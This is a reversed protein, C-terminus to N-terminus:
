RKKKQGSSSAQGRKKPTDHTNRQQLARGLKGLELTGEMSFAELLTLLDNPETKGKRLQDKLVATAEDVIKQHTQVQSRLRENESRLAGLEPDESRDQEAHQVEALAKKLEQIEQNKETVQGELSRILAANEKEKVEATALQDQLSRVEGQLNHIQDDVHRAFETMLGPLAEANPKQRSSETLADTASRELTQDSDKGKTLFAELKSVSTAMNRNEQQSVDLNVKLGQLAKQLTDNVEKAKNFRRAAENYNHRVNRLESETIELRSATTDLTSFSVRSLTDEERTSPAGMSTSPAPMTTQRTARKEEEYMAVCMSSVFSTTLFCFTLFSRTVNSYM